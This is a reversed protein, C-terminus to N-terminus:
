TVQKFYDPDLIFTAVSRIPLAQVSFTICETLTNEFFSPLAIIDESSRDMLKLEPRPSIPNQIIIM